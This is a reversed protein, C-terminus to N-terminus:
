VVLTYHKLLLELDIDNKIFQGNALDVWHMSNEDYGIVVAWKSSNKIHTAIDSVEPFQPLTSLLALSKSKGKPIQITVALERAYHGVRSRVLNDSSGCQCACSVVPM